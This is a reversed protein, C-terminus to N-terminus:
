RGGRAGLEPGRRQQLNARVLNAGRLDAGELNASQLNAGACDPLCEPLATATAASTLLLAVAVAVAKDVSGLGLGRKHARKCIRIIGTGTLLGAFRGTVDCGVVETLNVGSLNADSM